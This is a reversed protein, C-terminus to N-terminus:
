LSEDSTQLSSAARVINPLALGKRSFFIYLLFIWLKDPKKKNEFVALNMLVVIEFNSKLFALNAVKCAVLSQM